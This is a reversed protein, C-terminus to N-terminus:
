AVIEILNKEPDHVSSEYYGDAAPHPANLIPYGDVRLRRILADVQERSGAHFSLHAYGIALSPQKGSFLLEPRSLLELKAGDAFALMCGKLGTSPNGYRKVISAGFYRIYFASMVDLHSVYLATHDIHM